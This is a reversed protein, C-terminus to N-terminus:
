ILIILLNDQNWRGTNALSQGVNFTSLVRTCQIGAQAPIVDRLNATSHFSEAENHHHTHNWISANNKITILYKSVDYGAFAPIWHAYASEINLYSHAIFLGSKLARIKGVIASFQVNFASALVPNRGACSHVNWHITTNIYLPKSKSRSKNRQTNRAECGRILGM